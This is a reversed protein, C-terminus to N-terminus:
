NTNREPGEPGFALDYDSAREQAEQYAEACEWSDFEGDGTSADFFFEDGCHKCNAQM